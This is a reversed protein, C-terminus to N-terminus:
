KEDLKGHNTLQSITNYNPLNTDTFGEIIGCPLSLLLMAITAFTSLRWDSWFEITAKPMVQSIWFNERAEFMFRIRLSRLLYPIAAFYQAFISFMTGAVDTLARFTNYEKLLAKM